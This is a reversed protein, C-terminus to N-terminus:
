MKADFTWDGTALGGEGTQDRTNESKRLCKGQWAKRRKSIGARMVFKPKEM